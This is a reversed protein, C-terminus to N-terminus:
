LSPILTVVGKTHLSKKLHVVHSRKERSADERSVDEKPINMISSGFKNIVLSQIFTFCRM